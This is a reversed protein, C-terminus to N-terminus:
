QSRPRTENSQPIPQGESKVDKLDWDREVLVKRTEQPAKMVSYDIQVFFRGFGIRREDMACGM